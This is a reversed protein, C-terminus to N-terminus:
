LREVEADEDSLRDTSELVARRLQAKTTASTTRRCRARWRGHRRSRADRSRVRIEPVGIRGAGGAMLVHDACAALVCGGAIAHGNVAAVV